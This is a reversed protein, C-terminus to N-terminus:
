IAAKDLDIAPFSSAATTLRHVRAAVGVEARRLHPLFILPGGDIEEQLLAGSVLMQTLAEDIGKEPVALLQLAARRLADIPLACHGDSTAELLVHDIGARVRHLSDRAIGVRMAIQDATQFGIGYIDKALLYPNERVISIAQEGYTKYIRVARSTSVGHGHLFLMIQRVQKGEKWAM